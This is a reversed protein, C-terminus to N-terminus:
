NFYSSKDILCDAVGCAFKIYLKRAILFVPFSKSYKYHLLFVYKKVCECIMLNKSQENVRKTQKLFLKVSLFAM